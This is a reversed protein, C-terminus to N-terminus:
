YKHAFYRQNTLAFWLLHSHTNQTHTRSLTHTCPCVAALRHTHGHLFTHTLSHTHRIHTNQTYLWSIIHSLPLTHTRLLPHTLSDTHTHTTHTHSLSNSNSIHLIIKRDFMFAIQFSIKRMFMILLYNLRYSHVFICISYLTHVSTTPLVGIDWM